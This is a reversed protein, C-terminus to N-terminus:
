LMLHVQGQEVHFLPFGPDPRLADISLGTLIQQSNLSDLAM